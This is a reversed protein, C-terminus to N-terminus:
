DPHTRLARVAGHGAARAERNSLEPRIARLQKVWVEVYKRQTERVKDRAELPLAAWDRDQVIMLEEHELAFKVHWDILCRLAEEPGAADRVRQRGVSLLEDSISILM